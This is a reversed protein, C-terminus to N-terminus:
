ADAIKYGMNKVTEILNVDGLKKRLRKIYVSVTNDNVISGSAAWIEDTLRERTVITGKAELLCALIKRELATLEIKRGDVLTEGADLNLTIHKTALIRAVNEPTKRLSKKVRLLLERNHFPKTIYDEAGLELGRVVDAEDDKATLFIIAPRRETVAQRESLEHALDFGTGDPLSVDLLILDFDEQALRSRATAATEALTVFYKERELLYELGRATLLNDEVLLIRAMVEM